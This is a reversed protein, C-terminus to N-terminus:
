SHVLKYVGLLFALKVMAIVSYYKKGDLLKNVLLGLDDIMYLRLLVTKKGRSMKSHAFANV